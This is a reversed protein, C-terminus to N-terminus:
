ALVALFPARPQAHLQCDSVCHALGPLHFACAVPIGFFAQPSLLPPATCARIRGISPPLDRAWAQRGSPQQAPFLNIHCTSDPKSGSLWICPVLGHLPTCCTLGEVCIRVFVCLCSSRICPMSPRSLQVKDEAGLVGGKACTDFPTATPSYLDAAGKFTMVAPFHFYDAPEMWTRVQPIMRAGLLM